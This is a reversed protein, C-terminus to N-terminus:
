KISWRGAIGHPFGDGIWHQRSQRAPISLSFPFDAPLRLGSRRNSDHVTYGIRLKDEQSGTCFPCPDRDVPFVFVVYIALLYCCMDADHEPSAANVRIAIMSSGMPALKSIEVGSSHLGQCRTATPWTTNRGLDALDLGPRSEFAANLRLVNIDLTFSGETGPAQSAVTGEELEM